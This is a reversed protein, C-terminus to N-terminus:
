RSTTKSVTMFQTVCVQALFYPGKVNLDMTRQFDAEETQELTKMLALGANPILIDIHGGWSVTEQVLREIERVDAANAKIAIAKDSGIQKVLEDAPASDSSYNVVVKAGLSALELATAAGIGKSAGTILAVKGALPQSSTM